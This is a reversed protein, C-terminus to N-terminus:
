ERGFNLDVPEPHEVWDAVFINTERSPEGRANRNSAFVLRKGDRSFMPFADFTGSHTIQELGTGDLRILFLDFLRGGETHHNSAFIIREGDPHFYPAWQSGPLQIVRRPNSGDADAVFLDMDTPEVLGQALLRRYREAAEGTPRSARWVIRSGDPSFFAGGDYGLEHTLQLLEGTQLDYRWLELDGTRSSTFVVYRGDPSVTAEADYGPGGILLEPEAGTTDTIYIDYTDYVPWVYRGEATRQVPPCEPGAAHTSAYLVRGDPLFYACTTRGKGTSLLRYREGNALPRGDARMLFIQDCGQPNIAAWDSQFVLYRDDYSWYAEANNGGFTLQRINRLHVEGPFRLSDSAPDYAEAPPSSNPTCAPVILLSILFVSRVTLM